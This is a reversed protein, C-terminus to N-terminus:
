RPAAPPVIRGGDDAWRGADAARPPSGAQPRSHERRTLWARAANAALGSTLAFVLLKKLM